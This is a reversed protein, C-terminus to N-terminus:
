YLSFILFLWSPIPLLWIILFLLSLIPLFQIIRLLETIDQFIGHFNELFVNTAYYLVERNSFTSEM